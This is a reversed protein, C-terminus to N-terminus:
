LLEIGEAINILERFAFIGARRGKGERLPVLIGKERLIKMFRATTPKPIGSLDKFQSATFVAANFIFDVAKISHQSHTLEVTQNKIRNYLELIARAKRENEAAQLRIGKM